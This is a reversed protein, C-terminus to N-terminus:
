GTADNSVVFLISKENQLELITVPKDRAAADDAAPLQLGNKESRM